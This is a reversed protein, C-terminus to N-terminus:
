LLILMMGQHEMAQTLQDVLRQVCSGGLVLPQAQALLETAVNKWLLATLQQGLVRLHESQAGPILCDLWTLESHQTMSFMEESVFVMKLHHTDDNPRKLLSTYTAFTGLLARIFTSEFHAIHVISSPTINLMVRSTVLKSHSSILVEALDSFQIIFKSKLRSHDTLKCCCIKGLEITNYHEAFECLTKLEGFAYEVDSQLESCVCLLHFQALFIRKLLAVLYLQVGNCPSQSVGGGNQHQNKLQATLELLTPKGNICDQYRIIKKPSAGRVSDQLHRLHESLRDKVKDSAAM